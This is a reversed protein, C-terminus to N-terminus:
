KFFFHVRETLQVYNARTDSPSGQNQSLNDTQLHSTSSKCNCIHCPHEATASTVCLCPRIPAYDTLRAYRMNASTKPIYKYFVCPFPSVKM